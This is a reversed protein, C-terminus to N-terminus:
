LYDVLPISSSIDTLLKKFLTAIPQLGTFRSLKSDQHTLPTTHPLSVTSAFNKESRDNPKDPVLKNNVSPM